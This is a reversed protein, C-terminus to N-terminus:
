IIKNVPTPKPINNVKIFTIVTALVVVKLPSVFTKQNIITTNTGM